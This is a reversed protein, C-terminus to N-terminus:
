KCVEVLAKTLTLAKYYDKPMEFWHFSWSKFEENIGEEILTWDNAFFIYVSEKAGDYYFEAGVEDYSESFFGENGGEDFVDVVYCWKYKRAEQDLDRYFESESNYYKEYYKEEEAFATGLACLVLAIMMFIKKM